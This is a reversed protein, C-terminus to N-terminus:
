DESQQSMTTQEDSLIPNDENCSENTHTVVNDQTKGPLPVDDLHEWPLVEGKEVKRKKIPNNRTCVTRNSSDM